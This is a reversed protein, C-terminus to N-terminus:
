RCVTVWLPCSKSLDPLHCHSITKTDPISCGIFSIKHISSMYKLEEQAVIIQSTNNITRNTVTRNKCYMTSLMETSKNM